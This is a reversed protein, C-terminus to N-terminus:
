EKLLADYATGFGKFSVPLAVDKQNADKFLIQGAESAARLKKITDDKIDADAFCAAPVCRKFVTSLGPDRAGAVLKIGTPLWVGIPVQIALKIPQGKPHGIAVQSIVGQQGKMQTYQVMECNKQAPPGQTTECRVIWDEYTATTQQPATATAPQAAGAGVGGAFIVSAAISRVLLSSIHNGIM